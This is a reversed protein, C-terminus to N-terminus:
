EEKVGEEPLLSITLKRQLEKPLQEVKVNCYNFCTAAANNDETGKYKNSLYVVRKIGAQALFKACNQCPYLTTYVTAGDLDKNDGKYNLIANTEAHIVYPYKTHTEVDAKRGWPFKDDDWMNPAGNYGLSLIRNNKGVLVAGVQSSPDKSRNATVVAHLMFSEDWSSYNERKGKLYEEPIEFKEDM